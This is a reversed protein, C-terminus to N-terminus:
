QLNYQVLAQAEQGNQELNLLIVIDGDDTEEVEVEIDEIPEDYTWDGETDGSCALGSINLGDDSPTDSSFHMRAGPVISEHNLGGDIWLLAMGAGAEHAAVVNVEHTGGWYDYASVNAKHDLDVAGIHGLLSGTVITLGDIGPNSYPDDEWDDWANDEWNDDVPEADEIDALTPQQQRPAYADEDIQQDYDREVVVCAGSVVALATAAVLLLPKSVRHLPRHM